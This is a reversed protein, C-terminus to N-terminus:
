HSAGTAAAPTGLPALSPGGLPAGATMALQLQTDALWHDRLAEVAATVGAIQTRADALLEFVSVLMGNYRLLTEDAMRQRLPLLEDRHHRALAHAAVHAAHAERLESRADDAVQAAQHVAQLYIAEARAQRSEGFDFLPLELVLEFGNSRRAGTSSQNIYGAQLVNIFRTSRQLGLARATSAAQQRALLVDLRQDIGTQLSQQLEAPQPPLDPLRDPLQFAAADHGLGLLRALREQTALAQHRARMLQATADAQFVQERMQALKSFNGAAQMRHALTTAADAADQVQAHYQVLQRAAVAQYFAARAAAALALTDAAAQLQAQALHDAAARRALPLTFLGLVDVLVGRDIEVTGSGALRGLHLGPNAPRSARALDVQALGVAALRVQLGRNNLVALAAATDADLPRQLLAQIRAQTGADPVSDTQLQPAQGIRPQTLQAVGQMGADPAVTTCGALLAFALLIPAAPLPAPQRARPGPACAGTQFRSPTM